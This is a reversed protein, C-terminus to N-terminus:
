QSSNETFGPGLEMRGPQEMDNDRTAAPVRFRIGRVANLRVTEPLDLDALRIKWGFRIPCCAGLGWLAILRVAHGAMFVAQPATHRDLPILDVEVAAASRGPVASDHFGHLTGRYDRHPAYHLM